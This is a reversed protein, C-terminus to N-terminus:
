KPGKIGSTSTTGITEKNDHLQGQKTNENKNLNGTKLWHNM